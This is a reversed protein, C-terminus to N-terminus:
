KESDCINDAEEGCWGLGSAEAEAESVVGGLGLDEGSM